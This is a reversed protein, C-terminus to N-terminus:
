PAVYRNGEKRLPSFRGNLVLGSVGDRKEVVHWRDAHWLEWKGEKFHMRMDAQGDAEYDVVELVADGNGDVVTYTIFDLTGDGDNDGAMLMPTGSQRQYLTVGGGLATGSIGKVVQAKLNGAATVILSDFVNDGPKLGAGLQRIRNAEINFGHTRLTDSSQIAPVLLHGFDRVLQETSVPEEHKWGGAELQVAAKRSQEGADAMFVQEYVLQTASTWTVNWPWWRRPTADFAVRFAGDAMELIQLRGDSIADGGAAVLWRGDPSFAPYGPVAIYRGTQRDLLGYGSGEYYQRHITVYRGSADVELASHRVVQAEGPVDSFTHIRNGPLEIDLRGDDIRRIFPARLSAEIVRACRGSNGIDACEFKGAISSFAAATATSSGFCPVLAALAATLISTAGTIRM